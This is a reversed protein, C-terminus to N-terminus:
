AHSIVGDIQNLVLQKFEAFKRIAEESIVQDVPVRISYTKKVNDLSFDQM